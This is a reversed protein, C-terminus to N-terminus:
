VTSVTSYCKESKAMPGEERPLFVGTRQQVKYMERCISRPSGAAHCAAFPAIYMQGPTGAM